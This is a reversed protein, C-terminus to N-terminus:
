NSIESILTDKYKTGPYVSLIKIAVFTLGAKDEPIDTKPLSLNQYGNIDKLEIEQQAAVKLMSFVTGFQHAGVRQAVLVTVQIKRPRCNAAWIAPTKGFGAWIRVPKTADVHAIMAQSIGEDLAGECWATAPDGDTAQQPSYMCEWKDVAWEYERLEVDMEPTRLPKTGEAALFSSCWNNYSGTGSDDLSQVMSQPTLVSLGVNFRSPDRGTGHYAQAFGTCPFLLALVVATFISKM